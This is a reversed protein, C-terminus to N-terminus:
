PLTLLGVTPAQTIVGTNVEGAVLGSTVNVSVDISGLVALGVLLDDVDPLAIPAVDGSAAPLRILFGANITLAQFEDAVQNFNLEAGIAVVSADVVFFEPLSAFKFWPSITASIAGTDAEEILATLEVWIGNVRRFGNLPVQLLNPVGDKEVKVATGAAAGFDELVQDSGIQLMMPASFRSDPYSHQANKRGIRFEGM